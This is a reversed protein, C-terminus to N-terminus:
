APQRSPANGSNAPAPQPRPANNAPEAPRAPQPPQVPAWPGIRPATPPESPRSPERRWAPVVASPGAREELRRGWPAVGPRSAPFEGRGQPRTAGFSLGAGARFARERASLERAAVQRLSTGTAAEIRRPDVGRNIIRQDPGVVFNKNVTTASFITNAQRTDLRHDPLHRDTFHDFPVFTFSSPPLGFGSDAGVRTGNRTWGIGAAFRAGPPLPAWGCHTASHRWCVWAPGWVRDPCWVWGYRPYRCWRGYHFPAWGWSYYSNWYWGCDSWLWRGGDCYPLWSGNVIVVTPQWCWGYGPLELWTGYPSLENYFSNDDVIAPAGAAGGTGLDTPSQEALNAPNTESGLQPVTPPPASQAAQGQAAARHELLVALVSSSIGLDRLYLIEDASIPYVADSKDIYAILVEDSLGSEALRVIETLQPPLAIKAPRVVTAPPANTTPGLPAPLAATDAAYTAQGRAPPSAILTAAVGCLLLAALREITRKKWIRAQMLAARERRMSRLGVQAFYLTTSATPLPCRVKTSVARPTPPISLIM